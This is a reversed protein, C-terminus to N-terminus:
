DNKESISDLVKLIESSRKKRATDRLVTFVNKKITHENRLASFYKKWDLHHKEFYYKMSKLERLYSTESWVSREDILHKYNKASSFKIKWNKYKSARQAIDAEEGYMFIQEDFKGITEFKKREAFFFAGSLFHKEADFTNKNNASVTQYDSFVSKLEPKVYFSLNRGGLQKFGLMFLNEDEFEKQVESFIPECLQIDPNMVAVIDGKSHQIGFNNGQGYGLNDSNKIYKVSIKQAASHNEVLSQTEEADKGSSNDVVILEINEAPVDLFNEVSSLAGSIYKQSNYTVIILSIIKM